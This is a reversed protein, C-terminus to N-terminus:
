NQGLSFYLPRSILHDQFSNSPVSKAIVESIIPTCPQFKSVIHTGIKTGEPTLKLPNSGRNHFNGHKKHTKSVALVASLHGCHVQQPVIPQSFKFNLPQCKNQHSICWISDLINFKHHNLCPDQFSDLITKFSGIHGKILWTAQIKFINPTITRFHILIEELKVMYKGYELLYPQKACPFLRVSQRCNFM